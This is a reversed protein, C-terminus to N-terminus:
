EGAYRFYDFQMLLNGDGSDVGGFLGIQLPQDDLFQTTGIMIWEPGGQNMFYATYDSGSKHLMLSVETTGGESGSGPVPSVIDHCSTQFELRGTGDGHMWLKLLVWEGSTASKIIIGAVDSSNNGWECYLKTTIDFDQTTEIQQYLRTTNDDCFINAHLNGTITLWGQSSTGINWSDPENAWKWNANLTTGDFEDSFPLVTSTPPPDSDESKKCGSSNIICGLLLIIFFNFVLKPAKPDKMHDM